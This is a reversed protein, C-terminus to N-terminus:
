HIAFVGQPKNASGGTPNATIKVATPTTTTKPYVGAATPKAVTTQLATATKAIPATPPQATPPQVTTVPTVGGTPAGPTPVVPYPTGPVVAPVPQEPTVPATTGTPSGLGLQAVLTDISATLGEIDTALVSTDYGGAEGTGTSTGTQAGADGASPPTYGTTDAPLGTASGQTSKRRKYIVYAGGAALLIAAWAWFPLPGYKKKFFEM